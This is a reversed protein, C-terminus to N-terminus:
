QAKKYRGKRLYVSGLENYIIGQWNKYQIELPQNQLFCKQYIPYKEQRDCNNSIGSILSPDPTGYNPIRKRRPTPISKRTIISSEPIPTPTITPISPKPKPIFFKNESIHGDSSLQQVITLAQELFESTKPYNNRSLHVESIKNLITGEGAKDDIEQYIELVQQYFELAKSDRELNHYAQGINYLTTAEGAKDGIQRIIILVEQFIELAEQYKNQNLQKIGKDRLRNAKLKLDKKSVLKTSLIPIEPIFLILFLSSTFLVFIAIILHKFRPHM